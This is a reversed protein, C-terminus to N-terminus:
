IRPFLPAESKIRPGKFQTLIKQATEPLFTQLNYAIQRMVNVTNILVEKAHKTKSIWPKQASLYVDAIRIKEQWIFNLAENFQYCHLYKQIEPFLQPDSPPLELNINECLKAVRAVLNGLGNALDANYRTEFKSRSYDGDEFPNFEALLYYRVADTGYKNVEEIPDIVNGLSKSIKQGDVSLFGHIIIQKSSPLGASMLMAQWMASQQRLNDKGAFQIVPWWQQFKELDDPWGIASIYNILADFWVYMVHDQDGPVPIGWPLKAKLRSISFDQLGGSVFNEIENLKSNPLVFDPQNKYLELLPQQYKSWKFFYNEEELIELEKDPHWPCRDDVLDSEQKEL